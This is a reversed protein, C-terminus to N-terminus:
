KRLRKKEKLKRLLEPSLPALSLEARERIYNRVVEGIDSM